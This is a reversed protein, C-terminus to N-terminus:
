ASRLFGDLADMLDEYMLFPSMSAFVFRIAFRIEGRIECRPDFEAPQVRAAAADIQATVRAVRM